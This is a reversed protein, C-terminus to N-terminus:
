LTCTIKEIERILVKSNEKYEIPLDILHVGPTELCQKLCESFQAAETIRYGHAGYSQAYLVFDPNAFDLGQVEMGLQEQKWKIMGYSSDNLIIVVLNLNLRVATELEQSNMLFGGDGCIAVIKKEPYVLRAAIASPFGAGMTALSNDLLLTNPLSARYNRAFWIKYIGNDLTVIGDKPMAKQVDAVIRQPLLPFGNDQSGASLAKEIIKKMKMFYSFDWHTQKNIARTLLNVNGSLDGVVDLQPFHM